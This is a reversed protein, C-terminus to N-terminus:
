GIYTSLPRRPSNKCSIFLYHKELMIAVLVEIYSKVPMIHFMVNIGMRSKLELLHKVLTVCHPTTLKAHLDFAGSPTCRWIACRVLNTKKTKSVLMLCHSISAQDQPWIFLIGKVTKKSIIYVPVCFECCHAYDLFFLHVGMKVVEGHVSREDLMDSDPSIGLLDDAKLKRVKKKRKPKRFQVM